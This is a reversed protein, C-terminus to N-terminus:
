EIPMATYSKTSPLVIHGSMLPIWRFIISEINVHFPFQPAQHPYIFSFRVNLELEPEDSWLFVFVDPSYSTIKIEIADVAGWGWNLEM